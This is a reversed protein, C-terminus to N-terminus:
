KGMRVYTVTTAESQLASRWSSTEASVETLKGVYSSNESYIILKRACMVCPRGSLSRM